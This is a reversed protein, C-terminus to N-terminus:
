LPEIYLGHKSVTVYTPYNTLHNIQIQLVSAKIITTIHRHRVKLDQRDECGPLRSNQIKNDHCNNEGIEFTILVSHFSMQLTPPLELGLLHNNPNFCAVLCFLKKTRLRCRMSRFQSGACMVRGKQIPLKSFSTVM